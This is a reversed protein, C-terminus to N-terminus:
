GGNIIDGVARRLAFIGSDFHRSPHVRNTLLSWALGRDFDVWLGTGTFGTHGIVSATAGTAARGAPSVSAGLWAHAERQAADADARCGPNSGDLLTKGFDLVADITGFLGAHGTGQLAFCNEDHVEGVMVRGRWACYETAATNAPDPSWAFGQALTWARPDGHGAIGSWRSASSSSTSTPISRRRSSGGSASCCSPACRTRSRRRLHLDARRGPLADPPRPVPPLHGEAGLLEADYQRFDPIITTLPADLDIRGERALALIRPTTFIVKTLSALDFITERTMPRQDPDIQAAGISAAGRARRERTVVGLVGGPIRGSAVQERM